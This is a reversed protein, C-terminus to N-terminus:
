LLKGARDVIKGEAIEEPTPWLEPFDEVESLTHDVKPEKAKLVLNPDVDINPLKIM